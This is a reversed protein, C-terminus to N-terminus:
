QDIWGFDDKFSQVRKRRFLLWSIARKACYMFKKYVTCWNVLGPLLKIYKILLLAAPVTNSFQDCVWLFRLIWAKWNFKMKRWLRFDSWGSTLRVSGSKEMETSPLAHLYREVKNGNKLGVSYLNTYMKGCIFRLYFFVNSFM